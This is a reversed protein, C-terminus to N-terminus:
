NIFNKWILQEVQTKNIVQNELDLTAKEQQDVILQFKLESGERLLERLEDTIGIM